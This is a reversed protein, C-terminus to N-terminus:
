SWSFLADQPISSLGQLFQVRMSPVSPFEWLSHQSLETWNLQETAVGNIGARWAEWDMVLEWLRSSSMDMMSTIGDLLRMRQWGRRRRGEINRLMLTKELPWNKGDPPWYIPTEAEADTRGIVPNIEKLISQHSRRATWPVRLLRRSCWLDFADDKQVWSEKYDLEWM